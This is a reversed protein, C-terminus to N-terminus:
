FIEQILKNYEIPNEGTAQLKKWQEVTKARSKDDWPAKIRNIEDYHFNSMQPGPFLTMFTEYDKINQELDDIYIIAKPTWNIKQLYLHLMLGKNQGGTFLSGEAFHIARAPFPFKLGKEKLQSYNIKMKQLDEETQYPIMYNLYPDSSAIATKTFDIGHRKLHILTQFLFGPNRSTLGLVKVKQSQIQNIIQSIQPDIIETKAHIYFQGEIRLLEGLDKAVRDPSPSDQFIMDQQWNFWQDSGLLSKVYLLTNDVDLALLVNEAGHKKINEQIVTQIDSFKKLSTFAFLPSLFTLSFTIVTFFFHKIFM